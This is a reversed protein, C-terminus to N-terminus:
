LEISSSQALLVFTMPEIGLSCVDCMTLNTQIFADATYWIYIM